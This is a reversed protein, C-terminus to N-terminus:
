RPRSRGYIPHCRSCGPRGTAPGCCVMQLCSRVAYLRVTVCCFRSILYHFSLAAPRASFHSHRLGACLAARYAAQLACRTFHTSGQKVLTLGLSELKPELQDPPLYCLGSLHALHADRRLQEPEVTTPQTTLFARPVQFRRLGRPTGVAGAKFGM